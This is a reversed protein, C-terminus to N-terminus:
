TPSQLYIWRCNVNTAAAAKRDIAKKAYGKLDAKEKPNIKHAM